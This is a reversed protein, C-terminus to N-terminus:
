INDIVEQLHSKRIHRVPENELVKLRKWMATYASMQSPSVKDKKSEYWRDYIQGLTTDRAEGIPNQHYEALAELADSRTRFYGVTYYLQKGEPSWGVTVRAIWPRRRNGSLKYVSGYGNPLRM